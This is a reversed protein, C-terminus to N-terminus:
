LSKTDVIERDATESLFSKIDQISLGLKKAETILVIWEEDYNHLSVETTIM